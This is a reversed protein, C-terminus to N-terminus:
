ALPMTDRFLSHSNHKSSAQSNRVPHYKRRRRIDAITYPPRVSAEEIHSFDIRFVQACWEGFLDGMHDPGRVGQNLNRDKSLRYPSVLHPCLVHARVAPYICVVSSEFRSPAERRRHCDRPGARTPTCNASDAAVRSVLSLWSCRRAYSRM